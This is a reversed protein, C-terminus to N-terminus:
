QKTKRKKDRRNESLKKILWLITLLSIVITLICNILKGASLVSEVNLYLSLLISSVGLYISDFFINMINTLNSM